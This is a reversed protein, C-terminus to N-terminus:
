PARPRRRCGTAKCRHTEDAPCGATLGMQRGREENYAKIQGEQSDKEGVKTEPRVTKPGAVRSERVERKVNKGAPRRNEERPQGKGDELPDTRTGRADTALIQCNDLGQRDTAECFTTMM